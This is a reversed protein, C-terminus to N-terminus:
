RVCINEEAYARYRDLLDTDNMNWQTYFAFHVALGTGDVIADISTMLM